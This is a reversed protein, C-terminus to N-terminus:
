LSTRINQVAARFSAGLTTDVISDVDFSVTRNTGELEGFDTFKLKGYTDIELYYYFGAEILPGNYRCRLKVTSDNQFLEYQATDRLEFVVKTKVKRKKRGTRTYTKKGAPGVAIYKPTIGTPITHQGSVVRGTIETTGIASSTDLWLQMNQAALLTGVIQAPLTPSVLTWKGGSTYAGFGTTNTGSLQFTDATAGAVTYTNGNLQTMGGVSSILVQDGNVLGHGPSTVVGPNAQTVGTIDGKWLPFQTMGKVSMKVGEPKSADATITLEDAYGFAGRFVQTNPDGWYFTATKLNDGTITPVFEWLRSLTAGGPTSPSTVGGKVVMNLFVPLLDLDAAGEGQWNGAERVRNSRYLEELTGRSEVPEQYNVQPKIWGALNAYHTPPTIPTGKTAELALALYEFAIESM